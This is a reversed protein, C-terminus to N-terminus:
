SLQYEQSYLIATFLRKLPSEVADVNNNGVYDAWATSWENMPVQDLLVTNLFYSKREAGPVESFLYDTLEDIIAQPDSPNSINNEVWDVIDIQVGGLDGYTLVRDGTLLMEPLKYRSIIVSSNFWGRNYNPAQYYAEYGAVSSPEFITLGALEFLDYLVGRRYFQEYHNDSDTYPDPIAIDFFNLTQLTNELPNKILAGIVKGSSNGNQDEGYFHQSSLLQSVTSALDYNVRFANALPAIIDNEIEADIESSVFYRYLKRCIFEATAAQGFIIDVFDSIEELMGADTNRGTVTQNQFRHSFTKDGIDHRGVDTNGRPLGTDPDINSRGTIRWGTFLRAAEQVDQETYNTYDDPGTQEGKGITFLELFERGYNENPNYKNSYRGDLYDLMMQDTSIKISLEKFSGLCYYRMLKYYDYNYPSTLVNANVVFNSHLFFMMKHGIGTDLRAENIWWAKVYGYLRFDDPNDVETSIWPQGTTPDIPEAMSPEPLFALEAMAQQATLGAFYDIRSKSVNYTARRLLHKALRTGLPGTRPDLSAM